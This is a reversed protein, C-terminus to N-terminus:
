FQQAWGKPRWLPLNQCQSWDPPPLWMKLLLASKRRAATVSPRFGNHVVVFSDTCLHSACGGPRVLQKAEIFDCHWQWWLEIGCCCNHPSLTQEAGLKQLRFLSMPTGWRAEKMSPVYEGGVGVRVKCIFTAQSPTFGPLSLLFGKFLFPQSSSPCLIWFSVNSLSKFRSGQLTCRLKVHNEIGLFSEKISPLSKIWM